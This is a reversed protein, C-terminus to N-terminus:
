SGCICVFALICCTTAGTPHQFSASEAKIPHSCFVGARFSVFNLLVHSLAWSQLPARLQPFLRREIWKREKPLDLTRHKFWTKNWSDNAYFRVVLRNKTIIPHEDQFPPPLLRVAGASCPDWQLHPTQTEWVCGVKVKKREEELSFTGGSM